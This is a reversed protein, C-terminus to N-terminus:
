LSYVVIFSCFVYNCLCHSHWPLVHNLKNTCKAKCFFSTSLIHNMLCSMYVHLQYSNTCLSNLCIDSYSYFNSNRNTYDIHHDMKLIKYPNDTNKSTNSFIALKLCLNILVYIAEYPKFSKSFTCKNCLYRQISWPQYLIHKLYVSGKIM